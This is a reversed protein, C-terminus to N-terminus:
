LWFPLMGATQDQSGSWLGPIVLVSFRGRLVPGLGHGADVFGAGEDRDADGHQGDGVRAREGVVLEPSVSASRMALGAVLERGRAITVSSALRDARLHLGPDGIGADVHHDGGAAGAEGAAVHRRLRQLREELLAHVAERATKWRM